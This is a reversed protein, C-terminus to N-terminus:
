MQVSDMSHSSVNLKISAWIADPEEILARPGIFVIFDKVCRKLVEARTVLRKRQLLGALRGNIM